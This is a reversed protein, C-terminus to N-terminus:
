KNSKTGETRSKDPHIVLILGEVGIVGFAKSQIIVLVLTLIRQLSSNKGPEGWGVGCELRSLESLLYISIM